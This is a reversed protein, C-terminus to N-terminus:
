RTSVLGAAGELLRLLRKATRRLTKTGSACELTVGGFARKYEYVGHEPSRPDVAGISAGGLNFRRAGERRYRKITEWLLLTPAQTELAVQEHGSLTHYVLGNFCTFLGASVWRGDLKAGIIRAVGAELLVAIPDISSSHTGIRPGGRQAIREGSASQLRRLEAIGEDGTLDTVTVNLRLGKKVNKRRKHELASWLAEEPPDLALEFEFRRRLEFGLDELADSGGRYAFSGVALEVAGAASAYEELHRVFARLTGPDGGLVAPVADLWLRGSIPGLLARGSQARFGLAVGVIAGGEGYLTFFQPVANGRELVVYHAWASSHFVTGGVACVSADWCAPDPQESVEFRSM